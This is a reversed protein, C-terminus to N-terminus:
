GNHRRQVTLRTHQQRETSARNVSRQECVGRRHRRAGPATGVLERTEVTGAADLPRVDAVTVVVADVAGVLQVAVRRRPRTGAAPEAAGVADAADRSAVQAVAVAVAVVAAVLSVAGGTVVAPM